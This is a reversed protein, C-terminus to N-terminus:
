KDDNVGPKMIDLEPERICGDAVVKSFNGLVESILSPANCVM